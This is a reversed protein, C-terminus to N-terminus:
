SDSAARRYQGHLTELQHHVELLQARIAETQDIRSLSLLMSELQDKCDILVRCQPSGPEYPM